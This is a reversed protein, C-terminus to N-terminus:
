YQTGPVAGDSSALTGLTEPLLQKGSSPPPILIAGLEAHKECVPRAGEAGLVFFATSYADAEAATDAFVTAALLDDVPWGTRPDLLHGYKVGQHRFFQIGNGSTALCRDRVILTSLLEDPFLPNKLGVPWGGLGNHDGRCVISSGAAHMLFDTVGRELLLEAARDLAHGKGIAGLNFQVGERLYRITKKEPDFEVFRCGVRERITEVEGPRPIRGEDRCQRWLAVLPGSTPDFAGDLEESLAVAQQLLLFLRPEVEVPEQAARANIRSLESYPRYVTMQDELRDVLSLAETAAELQEPPGPNLYLEFDCAMSRQSLCVRDGASPAPPSEALMQDALDSGSQELASKLAQGTLFARRSPTPDNM